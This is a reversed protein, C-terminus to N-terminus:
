EEEDENTVRRPRTGANVEAGNSAGTKIAETKNAEAKQRAAGVEPRFNGDADYLRKYQLTNRTVGQVYGRTERFPIADTWEDIELPLSARWQVVRGPGANYAAAVYEVRGFRDLQERLYATGLQINLDPDFLADMTIARDVGIRRAVTQATPVLLQMLGYARAASVARPDFVSEQRILGAVTFPDLGRARAERTITNWHELPYFVDWEERTLEEPKMQSFDPYSRKLANLAQLNQERARLLKAKALNLRPSDPTTELPRNLEDIAEFDFGVTALEDAKKLAADAESTNATEDAVTVTQLNAVARAIESNADFDNRAGRPLNNLRQLALQGYWNAGYRPQMAKYIAAADDNRGSREADRGAWYAARGRFDTNKDAYYALHQLFLRASEKYNKADHAAWALEFQAPAADAARPYANVAARFFALAESVAKADKAIQGAAVLARPAFKSQPFSRQLENTAAHAASWLRSKANAQALYFLAEARESSAPSVSNLSAIAESMRRAGTNFAAIGRRLKARDTATQPFANFADAYSKAADDYRKALYFREARTTAEDADIPALPSNLRALAMAAEASEASAPAYFYIRRYAAVAHTSDNQREYTKAALLLAAGDDADVLKQLADLVKTTQNADFALEAAKLTARRALLSNSFGQALTEYIKRADDRRGAQMLADARLNLAYDGLRTRENIDRSNKELVAAAGNFDRAAFRVRALTINALAATETRPAANIIKQTATESPLAGGRTLQRLEARAEREDATSSKPLLFRLGGLTLILSLPAVISVFTLQKKSLNFRSRNQNSQV